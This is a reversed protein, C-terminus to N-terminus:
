YKILWPSAQGVSIFYQKIQVKSMKTCISIFCKPTGQLASMISVLVLLGTFANVERNMLCWPKILHEEETFHESADGPSIRLM